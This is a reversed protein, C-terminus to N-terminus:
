AGVRGWQSVASIRRIVAAVAFCTSIGSFAVGGILTMMRTLSLTSAIPAAMSETRVWVTAASIM